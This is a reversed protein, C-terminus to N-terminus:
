DGNRVLGNCMSLIFDYLCTTDKDATCDYYTFKEPEEPNSDFAYIEESLNTACEPCIGHFQLKNKM